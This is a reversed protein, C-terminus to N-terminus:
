EHNSEPLPATANLEARRKVWAAEFEDRRNAPIFQNAALVLRELAMDYNKYMIEREREAEALRQEFDKIASKMESWAGVSYGDYGAKIGALLRRELNQPGYGEADCHAQWHASLEEAAAIMTQRYDALLSESKDSEERIIDWTVVPLSLPGIRDMIREFLGREAQSM